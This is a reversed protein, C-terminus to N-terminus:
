GEEPEFSDLVSEIFCAHFAEEIRGHAEDMWELFRDNIEDPRVLIYEFDLIVAWGDPFRELDKDYLKGLIINSPIGTEQFRFECLAKVLPNRFKVGKRIGM